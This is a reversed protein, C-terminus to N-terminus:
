VILYVDVAKAGDLATNLDVTNSEVATTSTTVTPATGELTGGLFTRIVTNLPLKYPLGLKEGEGVSVTVGNGDMAPVSISTITKFAKSGVVTGLTNVTFAPMAETIVEDAYNTGTITVQVAKVDADTGAATVTLNKPVAPQTIGTTAVTTTSGSTAFLAKVSATTAAVAAAAAVVFHAVNGKDVEVGEVDTQMTQGLGPNYPYFGGM